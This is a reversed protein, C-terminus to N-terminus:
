DMFLLVMGGVVLVVLAGLAVRVLIIRVRDSKSLSM